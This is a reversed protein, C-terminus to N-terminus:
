GKTCSLNICQQIEFSSVSLFMMTGMPAMLSLIVVSLVIVKHQLLFAQNAVILLLLSEGDIVILM